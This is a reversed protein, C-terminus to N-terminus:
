LRFQSIQVETGYDAYYGDTRRGRFESWQIGRYVAPRRSCDNLRSAYKVQSVIQIETRRKGNAIAEFSFVTLEGLFGLTTLTNPAQVM